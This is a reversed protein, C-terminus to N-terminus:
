HRQGVYESLDFHAKTIVSDRFNSNKILYERIKNLHNWVFRIQKDTLNNEYNIMLNDGIKELMDMAEIINDPDINKAM